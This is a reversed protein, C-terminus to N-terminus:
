FDARVILWYTRTEYSPTGAALSVDGAANNIPYLKTENLLNRVSFNLSFIENIQYNIAGNLMHMGAVRTGNPAFWNYNYLYNIGINLDKHAQIQLHLRSINEPYARFHPNRTDSTLYQSRHLETSAGLVKVFAHSIGLSLVKWQYNASVETGGQRLIGPTNRFFFYGGWDGPEDTGIRGVKFTDPTPFIVGVDIVNQIMNYFLVADFNFKNNPKWRSALEFSQMKEPKAQPINRFITNQGNGDVTPIQASQVSSFNDSRLLGDKQYGGTYSVGVAGRFGEQYSARFSLQSNPSFLTGLRPSVNEGWYPHKDYRLATFLDWKQSIKYSDELFISGVQITNTFVFKNTENVQFPSAINRAPNFFSAAEARNVIFNNGNDDKQGLDYKRIEVGIALKNNSSTEWTLTSSGGYRNERTGGLTVGRHSQFGFDDQTYYFKSLINIKESLPYLYSISGHRIQNNVENRDRYFNFLDRNQNTFFTNLKLNKYEINGLIVENKSRELANGSAQAINPYFSGGFLTNTRLVSQERPDTIQELGSIEAGEYARQRTWGESRLKQGEYNMKSIYFYAKMDEILAGRQGSQIQYSRFGDKGAGVSVNTQPFSMGDKTVINIVGLLAGQGLTVSGPGRIVEIRQIYSLNMSNIISDPPGFQWETNLNFGNILLLVKSNSDPALGRFGAITDDQDEVKFFGPVYIMLVDNLTRGGSLLIQKESIITVSVPQKEAERFINSAVTVNQESLIQFVDKKSQEFKEESLTFNRHKKIESNFVYEQLNDVKVKRKTNTKIRIIIKRIWERKQSQRDNTFESPDIKVNPFEDLPNVQNYADILENTDPRYIQSFISWNPKTRVFGDLYFDSKLKRAEEHPLNSLEVKFGEKKLGEALLLRFEEIEPNSEEKNELSLFKGVTVTQINADDALLNLNYHFAIMVCLLKLFVNKFM